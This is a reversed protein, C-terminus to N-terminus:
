YTTQTLASCSGNIVLLLYQIGVYMIVQTHTLTIMSKRMVKLNRNSSNRWKSVCPWIPSPWHSVVYLISYRNMSCLLRSTLIASQTSGIWLETINLCKTRRFIYMKAWEWKYIRDKWASLATISHSYTRFSSECKQTRCAKAENYTACM